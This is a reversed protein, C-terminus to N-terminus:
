VGGQVKFPQMFNEGTSNMSRQTLLRPNNSQYLPPSNEPSLVAESPKPQLSKSLYNQSLNNYFQMGGGATGARSPPESEEYRRNLISQNGMNSELGTRETVMKQQVDVPM